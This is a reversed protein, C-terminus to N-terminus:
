EVEHDLALALAMQHYVLTGETQGARGSEQSVSARPMFISWCSGALSCLSFGCRM